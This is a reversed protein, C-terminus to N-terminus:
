RTYKLINGILGSAWGHGADTFHLEVVMPSQGSGSLRVEKAWRKGGDTTKYISKRSNIYGIEKAVFHIDITMSEPDSFVIKWSAGGDETKLINNRNSIYGNDADNFFIAGIVGSFLESTNKEWTIGGDVTKFLGSGTSIWGNLEDTFYLTKYYGPSPTFAYLLNWSHGGDETKWVNDGLAYATNENVFFADYIGTDMVITSDFSDGGNGTYYIKGGVASVFVVNATSGMATNTIDLEVQYAISWTDGGDKSRFINKGGTGFGTSGFFFIDIFQNGKGIDVKSWGAGLSDTQNSPDDTSGKKCSALLLGFSLLCPLIKRLM